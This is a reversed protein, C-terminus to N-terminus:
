FSMDFFQREFSFKLMVQIIEEPCINKCNRRKQKKATNRDMQSYISIKRRVDLKLKAVSVTLM